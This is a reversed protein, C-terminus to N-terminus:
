GLCSKHSTMYHKRGFILCIKFNNDFEVEESASMGCLTKVRLDGCLFQLLHCKLKNSKDKSSFVAQSKMHIRQRASPESSIDLRM